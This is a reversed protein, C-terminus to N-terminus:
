EDNLEKFRMMALKKVSQRYDDGAVAYTKMGLGAQASRRDAEIITTRGQNSKGLGQGEQWGMKQLLKNGVNNSTLGSQSPREYDSAVTETRSRSVSEQKKRQHNPESDGHKKRREKARDRYAIPTNQKKWAELNERHLDSLQQHKVLTERNSFQRKCLLCALKTWDILSELLEAAKKEDHGDSDSDSGYAVLASAGLPKKDALQKRQLVQLVENLSSKDSPPPPPEPEKRREPEPEYAPAPVAVKTSEKRQNLTKAWKEMDKAIKKAVTVKDQKEPKEKKDEQTSTLPAMKSEDASVPVFSHKDSDWYCFQQTQPNYFYQTKSDYYLNTATDYYYGSKEDFVYKSLDPAVAKQSQATTSQLQNAYYQTYYQLYSAHEEPTKAYLSASYEALRPIESATFNNENGSVTAQPGNNANSVSWQAAAVATMGAPALSNATASVSAVPMSSNGQKCYSVMVERGDIELRGVDSLGAFLRMADNTNNMEFYCVGRSINNLPDRGIRVSKIPLTAVGPVSQLISLVRDENTLVDMNRLLVTSTPFHSIERQVDNMLESESRPSQCKFCIERRKFNHEGCHICFWDQAAKAAKDNFSDKSISYQLTAQYQNELVLCGQNVEMWREAEPLRNFEVFAFGRSAGTDKRRILRIDKAVLGHMVINARIENEAVHLPLNSVMITNNPAVARWNDTREYERERHDDYTPRERERKSRDRSRSRRRDARSRSRSRSSGSDSSWDRKKNRERRRKREASKSRSRSRRRTRDRNRERNRDWDRETERRTELAIHYQEGPPSIEGDEQVISGEHNMWYGYSHEGTYNNSNAM